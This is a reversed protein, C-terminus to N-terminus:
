NEQLIQALSVISISRGVDSVDSRAVLRSVLCSGHHVALSGPVCTRPPPVTAYV